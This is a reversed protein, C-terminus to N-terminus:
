SPKMPCLQATGQNSVCDSFPLLWSSPPEPVELRGAEEKNPDFPRLWESFSGQSPLLVPLGKLGVLWDDAPFYGALLNEKVM